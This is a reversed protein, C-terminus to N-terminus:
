PSRVRLRFLASARQAYGTGASRVWWRYDSAPALRGLDRVVHTTDSTTDAIAARGEADLVEVVYRSAGAVPQWAVVLSDGAGLEVDRPGHVTLAAEEGRMPEGTGGPGRDRGVVVSVALVASAALALPVARRWPFVSDRRVTPRAGTMRAGAKELARLLELERMCEGCRMAHDLTRLREDEGGERRVLALLTDADPCDARTATGRATVAQQYLDRLRQDNM